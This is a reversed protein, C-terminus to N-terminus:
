TRVSASSAWYSVPRSRAASTNCTTRSIFASFCCRTSDGVVSACFVPRECLYNAVSMPTGTRVSCRPSCCRLCGLPAARVRKVIARVLGLTSSGTAPRGTQTHRAQRRDTGFLSSPDSLTMDVDTPQGLLLRPSPPAAKSGNFDNTRTGFVLSETKLDRPGFHAPRAVQKDTALM